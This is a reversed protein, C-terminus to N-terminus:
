HISNHRRGSQGRARHENRFISSIEFSDCSQLKKIKNRNVSVFNVFFNHAVGGGLKQLKEFVIRLFHSPLKYDNNSRSVLIRIFVFRRIAVFLSEFVM